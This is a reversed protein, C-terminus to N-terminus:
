RCSLGSEMLCFLLLLLLLLLQTHVCLVHYVRQLRSLPEQEEVRVHALRKALRVHQWRRLEEEM